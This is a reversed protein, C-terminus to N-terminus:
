PAPAWPQQANNSQGKSDDFTYVVKFKQGSLNANAGLGFYGSYDTGTYVTGTVTMTVITAEARGGMLTFGLLFSTFIM